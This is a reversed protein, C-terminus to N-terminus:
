GEESSHDDVGFWGVLASLLALIAAVGMIRRFGAIYAHDIAADIAERTPAPVHDPVVAAALDARVADVAALTTSDLSLTVLREDLVRDFGVTLVVGLAAIALLSATRSIANNVGSALGVHRDDVANMVTTTLPAVCIAMGLGLVLVGPFWDTWYNSDLGPRMLLAFGAAAITPGITLPLRAGFRDVLGGSWRSLLSLSLVMPLLAMGAVTPRWEQVQVLNFPLFFFVGGLAAYLLLTLLNVASFTRSRFMGLPMMPVALRSEVILFAFFGAIGVILSVVVFLDNWGRLPAEILGFVFAGLGVTVLLAGWLDIPKGQASEDRSEDVFRLSIVIVMVAVPINLYFIWRWSWSEALWGGLVPGVAATIATFASWTGIATGRQRDSFTAGIIALSGPLLLAGAAGQAARAWILVDVTPAVGCVASAMAFTAVGILFVRRRGYRDGLAGGVLLLAALLLAYSEVVWQMEAVTAVLEAQMVPLAVSVATGDIMAMASGLVTAALVWRGKVRPCDPINPRSLCPDDLPATTATM